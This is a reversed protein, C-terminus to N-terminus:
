RRRWLRTANKWRVRGRDADTEADHGIIKRGCKPCNAQSDSIAVTCCETFLTSNTGRQMLPHIGPTYGPNIYM